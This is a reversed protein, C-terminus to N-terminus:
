TFEKSLVYLEGCRRRKELVMSTGFFTDTVNIALTFPATKVFKRPPKAAFGKEEQGTSKCSLTVTINFM